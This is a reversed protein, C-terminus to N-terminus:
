ESQPVNRKQNMFNVRYSMNNNKCFVNAVSCKLDYKRKDIVYGKVEELVFEGTSYEILFDPIYTKELGEFQYPIKIKHKKTWSKVSSDDDLEKMRTYEYSSHYFEKVKTKKSIYYGRKYQKQKTNLLIKDLIEDANKSKSWHSKKIKDVWTIKRGTLLKSMHQKHEETHYGKPMKWGLGRENVSIINKKGVTSSLERLWPHNVYRQKSSLSLNEHIEQTVLTTLNYREKYESVSMHITVHQSLNRFRRGCEKCELTEKNKNRKTQTPLNRNRKQLNREKLILMMQRFSISHKSYIKRSPMGGYYDDLIKKVKDEDM